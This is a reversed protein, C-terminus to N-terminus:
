LYRLFFFRFISCKTEKAKIHLMKNQEIKNLYISKPGWYVTSLFKLIVRTYPYLIRKFVFCFKLIQNLRQGGTSHYKVWVGSFFCIGHRDASLLTGLGKREHQKRSEKRWTMLLNPLENRLDFKFM